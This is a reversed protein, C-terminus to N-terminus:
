ISGIRFTRKKIGVIVSFKFYIKLKLYIYQMKVNCSMKVKEAKESKLKRVEDGQLAVKSFLAKAEPTDPGSLVM